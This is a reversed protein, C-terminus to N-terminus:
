YSCLIREYFCFACMEQPNRTLWESDRIQPQSLSSVPEKACCQVPVDGSSPETDWSGERSLTGCELTQLRNEKQLKKTRAREAEILVYLMEARWAKSKFSNEDSQRSGQWEDKM